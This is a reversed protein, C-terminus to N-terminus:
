ASSPGNATSFFFVSFLVGTTGGSTIWRRRDRRVEAIPACDIGGHACVWDIAGLMRAVVDTMKTDLGPVFACVIDDDAVGDLWAPGKAGGSSVAPEVTAPAVTATVAAPLPNKQNHDCAIGGVNCRTYSRVMHWTGHHKRLSAVEAELTKVRDELASLAAVAQEEEWACRLAHSPVDFCRM